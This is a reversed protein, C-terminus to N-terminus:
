SVLVGAITVVKQAVPLIRRITPIVKKFFSGKPEIRSKKSESFSLQEFSMIILLIIKINNSYEQVVQFYDSVFHIHNNMM